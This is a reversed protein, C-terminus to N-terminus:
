ALPKYPMTINIALWQGSKLFEKAEESTACDAFGYVWPLGLAQYAANHMVPSKSHAVPHGLVFLDKTM